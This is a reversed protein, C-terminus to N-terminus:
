VRGAAPLRARGDIKRTSATLFPAQIAQQFRSPAYREVFARLRPAHRTVADPDACLRDLAYRLARPNRCDVAIGLGHSRVLHGLLGFDHVVVPTGVAAAELLVRSMTYHRPYPLVICSGGALVALGEIEDHRHLRLDVDAGASRMAEVHRELRAGFQTEIEGALTVRLGGPEAAVAAALLDVGKRASLAGYLVVGSRAAPRRDAPLRAVPPEPFWFAPAGRGIRVSPLAQPDLLFLAHADPRRRWRQILAWQLWASAMEGPPLRSGFVRRYHARAFFICFSVRTPWAPRRVSRRLIPDAYLHLVHDPRKTRVVRDVLDLEIDALAAHQPGLPRSLDVAPREAGLPCPVVPLDDLADLTQDPAAVTVRAVSALSAAAHHLYLAHHGGCTWDFLIIQVNM